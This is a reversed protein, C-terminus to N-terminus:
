CRIDLSGCRHLVCRFTIRLAFQLAEHIMSFKFACQAEPLVPLMSTQTDTRRREPRFLGPGSSQVTHKTSTTFSARAREKNDRPSFMRFNTSSSICNRNSIPLVKTASEVFLSTYGGVNMHGPVHTTEFSSKFEQLQNHWDSCQKESRLELM